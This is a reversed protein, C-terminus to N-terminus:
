RCSKRGGKSAMKKSGKGGSKKMPPKGGGIPAAEFNAPYMGKAM